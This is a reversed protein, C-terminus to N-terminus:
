ALKEIQPLYNISSFLTNGGGIDFINSVWMPCTGIVLASIVCVVAVPFRQEKLAWGGALISIGAFIRAGWKFLATDVFRLITGAAELKDSQDQGPLRVQAHADVYFMVGIILCLFILTSSNPFRFRGFVPLKLNMVQQM